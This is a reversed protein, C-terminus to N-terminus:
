SSAFTIRCGGVAPDMVELRVVRRGARTSLADAIGRHLGCVVDTYGAAVEAYPCRELVLVRGEEGPNWVPEFGDAAIADVLGAEDLVPGSAAERGVERVTRGSSVAAALLTALRTGPDLARAQPTAVYVLRPRGRKTTREIQETLLGREVLARLHRKVGNSTMGLSAAVDAIGVPAEAEAVAALVRERTM